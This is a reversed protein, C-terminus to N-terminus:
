SWSKNPPQKQHRDFDHLLALLQFWLQSLITSSFSSLLAAVLGQYFGSFCSERCYLRIVSHRRCLIPRLSRPTSNYLSDNNQGEEQLQLARNWLIANNLVVQYSNSFGLIQCELPVVPIWNVIVLDVAGRTM